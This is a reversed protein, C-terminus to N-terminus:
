LDERELTDPDYGNDKLVDNISTEIVIWYSTHYDTVYNFREDVIKYAEEAVRYPWDEAFEDTKDLLDIIEQVKCAIDEKICNAQEIKYAERIEEQTLEILKGDRKIYM